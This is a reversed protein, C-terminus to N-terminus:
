ESLSPKLSKRIGGQAKELRKVDKSPEFLAKSRKEKKLTVSSNAVKPSM